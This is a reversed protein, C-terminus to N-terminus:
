YTTLFHHKELLSLSTDQSPIKIRNSIQELYGTKTFWTEMEADPPFNSIIPWRLSFIGTETQNLFILLLSVWRQTTTSSGTSLSEARTEKVASTLTKRVILPFQLKHSNTHSHFTDSLCCAFTTLMSHTWPLAQFCPQAHLVWAHIEPTAWRSM